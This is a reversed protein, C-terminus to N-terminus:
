YSACFLNSRSPAHTYFLSFGVKSLGALQEDEGAWMKMLSCIVGNYDVNSTWIALVFPSLFVVFRWLASAHVCHRFIVDPYVEKVHGRRGM